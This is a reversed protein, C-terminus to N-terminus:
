RTCLGTLDSHERCRGRSPNDIQPCANHVRVCGDMLMVAKELSAMEKRLGDVDERELATM